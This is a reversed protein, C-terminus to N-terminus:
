FDYNNIWLFTAVAPDAFNDAGKEVEALAIRIFRSNPNDLPPYHLDWNHALGALHKKARSNAGLIGNIPLFFGIDDKHVRLPTCPAFLAHTYARIPSDEIVSFPFLCEDAIATPTFRLTHEPTRPVSQVVFGHCLLGFYPM